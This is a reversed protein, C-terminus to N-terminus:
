PPTAPLFTHTHLKTHASPLVIHNRGGKSFFFLMFLVIIIQAHSLSHTTHLLWFAHSVSAARRTQQLIAAASHRRLLRFSSCPAHLGLPRVYSM